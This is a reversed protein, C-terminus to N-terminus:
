SVYDIFDFATGSVKMMWVTEPYRDNRMPLRFFEEADLFKEEPALDKTLFGQLAAGSALLEAIVIPHLTAYKGVSALRGIVEVILSLQVAFGTLHKQGHPDKLYTPNQLSVKLARYRHYNAHIQFSLYGNLCRLERYNGLLHSYNIQSLIRIQLQSWLSVYTTGLPGGLTTPLKPLLSAYSSVNSSNLEGQETLYVVKGSSSTLLGFADRPKRACAKNLTRAAIVPFESQFKALQKKLEPVCASPDVLRESEDFEAPNFTPHDHSRSSRKIKGDVSIAEPFIILYNPDFFHCQRLYL